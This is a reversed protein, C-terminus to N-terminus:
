RAATLVGPPALRGAKQMGGRVALCGPIDRVPRWIQSQCFVFACGKLKLSGDAMPTIRGRYTRGDEPNTLWGDEWHDDEWVFDGLFQHPTDSGISPNNWSWVMSGCLKEPTEDCPAFRVHAGHGETAFIGDPISPSPEAAFAANNSIGSLVTAGVIIAVVLMMAPARTARVASGDLPKRVAEAFKEHYLPHETGMLRDWWTFYFGFNWGAQAHHLDHHTVTAMWDFMPRGDRNSPFLEYGCHAVANRLIMHTLFVFIALISTPMLFTVIPLYIANIVAEAADFSYATWPSPNKSKHHSGHWRRFLRPHHILRHSWYFWADHLLVMATLNFAFYAWGRESIDVYTPIIEAEAAIVSVAGTFAFIATTRLSLAFERTMQKSDPSRVRIKRERLRRALLINVILFVGGAGILYRAFDFPLIEVFAALMAVAVNGDASSLLSTEM